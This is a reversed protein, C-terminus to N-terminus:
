PSEFGQGGAQLAPARGASSYGRTFQREAQLKKMAIHVTRADSLSLRSASVLHGLRAGPCGQRLQEFREGLVQALPGPEALPGDLDVLAGAGLEGAPQRGIAQGGIGLVDIGRV